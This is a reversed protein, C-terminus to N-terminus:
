ITAGCGHTRVICSSGHLPTARRTAWRSTCVLVSIVRCGARYPLLSTLFLSFSFRAFCFLSFGLSHPLLIYARLYGSGKRSWNIGSVLAKRFVCLGVPEGSASLWSNRSLQRNSGDFQVDRSEEALATCKGGNAPLGSAVGSFFEVSLNLLKKERSPHVSNLKRKRYCAIHFCFARCFTPVNQFTNIINLCGRHM